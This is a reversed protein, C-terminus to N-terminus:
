TKKLDRDEEAEGEGQHSAKDLDTARRETDKLQTEYGEKNKEDVEESTLTLQIKCWEEVLGAKEMRYKERKIIDPNPKRLKKEERLTKEAEM